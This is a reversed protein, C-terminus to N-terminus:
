GKFLASLRGFMANLAGSTESMAAFIAVIILALLLGYEVASAGSSDAVFRRTMRTLRFQVSSGM